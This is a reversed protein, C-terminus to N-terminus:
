EDNKENVPLLVGERASEEIESFAQVRDLQDDVKGLRKEADEYKKQANGIHSGLVEFERLFKGHEISLRELHGLIEKARKEIQMGQLGIMITQLYSYLSNPSVPIVRKRFLYEAIGTEEGDKIIIEYYVNEAPIYMLAFGLTGEEPLIYKAAIADVHKKVDSIFQRRAIKREDDSNSEVIRKFNELPFKSDVSIDGGKLRILADVIEGSRFSHQLTFHDKPLMQGLIDQLMLEGFGGRLKPAKLIEQLSSVEKGVEFIKQNSEKVEALAARVEAFSRAAGDLRDDLRKTNDGLRRDLAANLGGIQGVVASSFQHMEQSMRRDLSEMRELLFTRENEARRRIDRLLFLAAVVFLAIGVLLLITSNM